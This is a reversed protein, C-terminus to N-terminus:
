GCSPLPNAASRMAGGKPREKSSVHPMVIPKLGLRGLADLMKSDRRVM